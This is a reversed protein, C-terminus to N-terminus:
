DPSRQDCLPYSDVQWHLPCPNLGQDIFFECVVSYGLRHAVAVSAQISLAQARFIFQFFFNLTKM